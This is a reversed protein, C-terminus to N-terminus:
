RRKLGLKGIRTALIIIGVTGALIAISAFSSAFEPSSSPTEAAIKTIVTQSDKDLDIANSFHDNGSDTNKRFMVHNGDKFGFDLWAVYVYDNNDDAAMAQEPNSIGADGTLDLTKGFTNGGDSSSTFFLKQYATGNVSDSGQWSVYYRDGFASTVVPDPHSNGSNIKQANGFTNGYDSSAIANIEAGIQPSHFNYWSLYVFNKSADLALSNIHNSDTNNYTALTTPPEGFSRGGDNSRLFLISVGGAGEPSGSDTVIATAAVYVNNGSAAIVSAGINGLSVVPGVSFQGKDDAIDIKTVFHRGNDGGSSWLVYAENGTQVM